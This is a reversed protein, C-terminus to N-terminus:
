RRDRFLDQIGTCSSPGSTRRIGSTELVNYPNPRRRRARHHPPPERASRRKPSRPEPPCFAPLWLWASRSGSHQRVSGTSPSAALPRASPSPSGTDSPSRALEVSAHHPHRRRAPARGQRPHRDRLDPRCARRLENGTGLQDAWRRGRAALTGSWTSTTNAVIAGALTMLTVSAMLVRHAASGVWRVIAAGTLCGSFFLCILLAALGALSWHGTATSSGLITTNGSMFAVFNGQLVVFAVADVFGGLGLLWVGLLVDSSRLRAITKTVHVLSRRDLRWAEAHGVVDRLSPFVPRTASMPGQGTCSVNM